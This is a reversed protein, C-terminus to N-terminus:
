ASAFFRRRIKPWQEDGIHAHLDPVIQGGDALAPDGPTLIGILEDLQNRFWERSRRADLLERVDFSPSESRLRM